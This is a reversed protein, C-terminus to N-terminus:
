TSRLSEYSRTCILRASLTVMFDDLGHAKLKEERINPFTEISNGGYEKTMFQRSVAIDRIAPDLHVDFASGLQQM